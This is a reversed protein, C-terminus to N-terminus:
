VYSVKLFTTEREEDHVRLNKNKCDDPEDPETYLLCCSEVKALM